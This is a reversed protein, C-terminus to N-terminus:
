MSAKVGSLFSASLVMVMVRRLSCSLVSKRNPLGVIAYMSMSRKQLSLGTISFINWYISPVAHFVTVGFVPM